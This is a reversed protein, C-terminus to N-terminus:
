RQGERVATTARAVASALSEEPPWDVVRSGVARLDDLALAREAAALTGGPTDTATVDPCVATVRHGDAALRRALSAPFADLAPSCVVVQTGPSVRAAFRRVRADDQEDADTPAHDDTDQVDADTPGEGDPWGGGDATPTPARREGGEAAAPEAATDQVDADESDSAAAGAGGAVAADLLTAVRAHHADGTGPPVWAPETADGWDLGFVAVGVQHGADSLPEVAQAAAYASLAAGSPTGARAAVDAEDRADVALVVAAARRERYNVTSLDGTKAYRRWNIRSAPDGRQYDRTSHFEIGPGGSDTPLTGAHTTTQQRLPVGAVTVRCDLRDAGAASVDLTRADGGSTGRLRVTVADFPFTGRDAVVAYEVTASGGAPLALAADPTGEVVRLGAPVGDAVRVDPLASDGRNEVTLTVRVRDGPMPDDTSLSRAAVLSEGGRPASLAGYLVFALPVAAAVLLTPRGSAVGAGALALTALLGGTFRSQGTM